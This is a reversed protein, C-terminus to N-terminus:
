CNELAITLQNSIYKLEDFPLLPIIKKIREAAIPFIKMQVFKDVRHTKEHCGNSACLILYNLPHTAASIFNKKPLLHATAHRIYDNPIWGGCEMCVCGGGISHREKIEAFWKELEVRYTDVGQEKEKQVRKASKKPIIYTKKQALPRGDAIHKMRSIQYETLPM